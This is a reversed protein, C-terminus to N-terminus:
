FQITAKLAQWVKPPPLTSACAPRPSTIPGRYNCHRRLCPACSFNATLIIQDKGQVGTLAPSTAGYLTVTPVSLAAALHGLGTDVSVVGLANALVVAMANLDLSPLVRSSPIAAAIHQARQRELPNGWPLYVQLGAMAIQQGLSIWHDEPWCKSPWASGHLFVIYPQNPSANQFQSRDIGYDPAIQQPLPYGLSHAFLTRLRVIAHENHPITYRQQYALAALPERASSRDFGCRPGRALATVVASKILGQADIVRDYSTTNLRRWFDEWEGALLTQAPTRRWRRLAIPIIRDVGPHWRPITQYAEEVVWDFRAQPLAQCADTLAPLTHIVDGLSSTKVLLVKM